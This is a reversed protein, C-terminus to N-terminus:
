QDAAEEHQLQHAEGDIQDREEGHHQRDPDHDVVRDDHDLRHVGLHGLRM